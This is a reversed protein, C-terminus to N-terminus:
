TQRSWEEIYWYSICNSYFTVPSISVELKPAYKIPNKKPQIVKAQTIARSYFIHKKKNRGFLYHEADDCAIM